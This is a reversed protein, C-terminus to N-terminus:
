GYYHECSITLIFHILIQLTSSYYRSMFTNFFHNIVLYFYELSLIALM